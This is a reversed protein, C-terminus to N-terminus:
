CYIFRLCLFVRV